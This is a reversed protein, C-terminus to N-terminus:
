TRRCSALFLIGRLLHEGKSEAAARASIKLLKWRALELFQTSERRSKVGEYFRNDLVLDRNPAEVNAGKTPVKRVRTELCDCAVYPLLGCRLLEAQGNILGIIVGDGMFRTNEELFTERARSNKGFGITDNMTTKWLKNSKSGGGSVVSNTCRHRILAGAFLAASRGSSLCPKRSEVPVFTRM